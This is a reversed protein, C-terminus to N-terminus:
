MSVLSTPESYPVSLPCYLVDRSMVHMVNHRLKLYWHQAARDYILYQDVEKRNGSKCYTKRDNTLERCYNSTIIKPKYKNKHIKYRKFTIIKEM